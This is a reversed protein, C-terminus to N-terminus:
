DVDIRKSLRDDLLGVECLDLRIDCVAIPHANLTRWREKDVADLHLQALGLVQIVRNRLRESRGSTAPATTLHVIQWTERSIERPSGCTRPREDCHRGEVAVDPVVDTFAKAFRTGDGRPSDEHGMGDGRSCRDMASATMAFTEIHWEPVNRAPAIAGSTSLSSPFCREEVCQHNGPDSTLPASRRICALGRSACAVGPDVKCANM